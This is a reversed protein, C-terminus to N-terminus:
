SASARRSRSWPWTATAAPTTCPPTARSTASTSPTSRRARARTRTPASCLQSSAPTATSRRATCHPGDRMRGTLRRGARLLLRVIPLHGYECAFHLAGFGNPGRQPLSAKAAVLEHVCDDHGYACARHLATWGDYDKADVAVRERVLSSVTGLDGVSCAERLRHESVLARMRRVDYVLMSRLLSDLRKGAEASKLSQNRSAAFHALRLLVEDFAERRIPQLAVAASSSTQMEKIAARVDDEALQSPVLRFGYMMSLLEDVTM